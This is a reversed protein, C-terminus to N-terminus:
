IAIMQLTLLDSVVAQEDPPFWASFVCFTTTIMIVTMSGFKSNLLFLPALPTLM